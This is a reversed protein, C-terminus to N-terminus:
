DDTADKDLFADVFESPVQHFKMDDFRFVVNRFGQGPRSGVRRGLVAVGNLAIARWLDTTYSRDKISKWTVMFVTGVGPIWLM